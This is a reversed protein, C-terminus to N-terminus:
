RQLVLLKKIDEPESLMEDNVEYHKAEAGFLFAKAILNIIHGVCRLRREKPEVQPNSSILLHKVTTDTVASTPLHLLLEIAVLQLRGSPLQAFIESQPSFLLNLLVLREHTHPSARVMKSALGKVVSTGISLGAIMHGNYASCITVTDMNDANDLMFYGLKDKIRNDDILKILHRALNEDTHSSTIRKIGLLVIRVNNDVGM